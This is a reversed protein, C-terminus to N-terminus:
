NAAKCPRGTPVYPLCVPVVTSKLYTHISYLYRSLSRGALSVTASSAKSSISISVELRDTATKKQFRTIDAYTAHATYTRVQGATLAFCRAVPPKNNNEDSFLLISAGGLPGGRLQDVHLIKYKQTCRNSWGKRQRGVVRFVDSSTPSRQTLDFVGQLSRTRGM